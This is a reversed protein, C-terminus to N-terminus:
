EVDIHHLHRTSPDSRTPEDASPREAEGQGGPAADLVARLALTLERTAATLHQTVEPRRSTLVQLLVCVPCIECEPSGGFGSTGPHDHTHAESAM